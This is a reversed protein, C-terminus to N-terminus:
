EQEAIQVVRKVDVTADKMATGWQGTVGDSTVFVEGQLPNLVVQIIAQAIRASSAKKESSVAIVAGEKLTIRTKKVEKMGSVRMAWYTDKEDQVVIVTSWKAKEKLERLKTEVDEFKAKDDPKAKKQPNAKDDPKAKEEPKAREQPKAKEEDTKAKEAVKAKAEAKATAAPTKTGSTSPDNGCGTLVVAAGIAFIGAFLRM